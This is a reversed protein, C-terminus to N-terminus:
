NKVAFFCHDFYVHQGTATVVRHCKGTGCHGSPSVDAGVWVPFFAVPRTHSVGRWGCWETM